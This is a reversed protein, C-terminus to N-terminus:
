GRGRRPDEPPQRVSAGAARTKTCPRHSRAAQRESGHPEVLVRVSSRARSCAVQNCGRRPESVGGASRECPRLRAFRSLRTVGATGPRVDDERASSRGTMRLAAGAGGRGIGGEGPQGEGRGGDRESVADRHGASFDALRAVCSEVGGRRPRGRDVSRACRLTPILVESSVDALGVPVAVVRRRSRSM